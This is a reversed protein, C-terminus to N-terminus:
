LTIANIERLKNVFSTVGEKIKEKDSDPYENYFRELLEELSLDNNELLHVIDSGTGNLKVVGHFKKTEEGVPILIEGNDTQHILFNENLKM